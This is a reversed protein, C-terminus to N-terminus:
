DNITLEGNYITDFIKEKSYFMFVSVTKEILLILSRIDKMGNIIIFSDHNVEKIFFNEKIMPYMDLVRKGDCDMAQKSKLEFIM